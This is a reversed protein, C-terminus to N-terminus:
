GRQKNLEERIISRVNCYVKELLFDQSDDHSHPKLSGQLRNIIEANMSKSNEKALESLAKHLETPIRLTIRQYDM